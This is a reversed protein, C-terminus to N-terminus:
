GPQPPSAPAQVVKGAKARSKVVARAILTALMALALGFGGGLAWLLDPRHLSAVYWAGGIALALM